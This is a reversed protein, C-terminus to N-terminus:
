VIKNMQQQIESTKKDLLNLELDEQRIVGDLDTDCAKFLCGIETYSLIPIKSKMWTLFIKANLQQKQGEDITNFLTLFDMENTIM